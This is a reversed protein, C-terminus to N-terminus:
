PSPAAHAAIVVRYGSLPIFAELILLRKLDERDVLIRLQDLQLILVAVDLFDIILRPLFEVQVQGLFGFAPRTGVVIILVIIFFFVIVVIVVVVPIVVIVFVILIVLLLFGRRNSLMWAVSREGAPVQGSRGPGLYVADTSFSCSLGRQFRAQTTADESHERRIVKLAARRGDAVSSAAYVTGMAGSGLCADLRYRGGVVFGVPL